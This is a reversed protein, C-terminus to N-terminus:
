SCAQWQQMMMLHVRATIHICYHLVPYPALICTIGVFREDGILFMNVNYSDLQMLNTGKYSTSTQLTISYAYTLICLCTQFSNQKSTPKSVRLVCLEKAARHFSELILNSQKSCWSLQCHHVTWDLIYLFEIFRLMM